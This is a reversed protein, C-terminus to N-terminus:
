PFYMVLQVNIPSILPSPSLMGILINYKAGEGGKLVRIDASVSSTLRSRSGEKRSLRANSMVSTCTLYNVQYVM